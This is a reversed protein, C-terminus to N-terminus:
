RKILTHTVTHDVVVRPRMDKGEATKLRIFCKNINFLQTLLLNAYPNHKKQMWMKKPLNHQKILILIPLLTKLFKYRKFFELSHTHKNTILLNKHMNKTATRLYLLSGPGRIINVQVTELLYEFPFLLSM